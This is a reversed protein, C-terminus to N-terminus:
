AVKAAFIAMKMHHRPNTMYPYSKPRRRRVRPELRDPRSPNVKLRDLGDLGAARSILWRMADIFSIRDVDVGQAQAARMMTARVMNYVIMYVAMEKLVGDVTHCKLVNMDMTTKIHNFCTEINWRRAYMRSIKDDPWEVDDALTTAIYIDQDRFGDRKVVHRVVRVTISSPLAMFVAQDMWAPCQDAPPRHWQQIGATKPRRQHLNVVADVGMEALLCLHVFSCFACDAVVIDGRKLDPHLGAAGAMDHTCNAMSALRIFMGSADDLLAMFKAVPYGIGAVQGPPLGFHEVLEPIDPMSFTSGDMMVVRRAIVASEDPHTSMGRVSDAMRSLLAQFFELPLNQRAKCYSSPSFGLGSLHRLDAIATNHHLVQLCFLRLLVLPSLLRDRYVHGLERCLQDITERDPLHDQPSRSIAALVTQVHAM